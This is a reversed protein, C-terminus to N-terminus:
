RANREHSEAGALGGLILSLGGRDRPKPKPQQLLETVDVSAVKPAQDDLLIVLLHGDPVVHRRVRRALLPLANGELERAYQERPQLHVVENPEIPAILTDLAQGRELAATVEIRLMLRCVALEENTWGLERMSAVGPVAKILVNM